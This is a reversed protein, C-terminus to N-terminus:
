NLFINLYNVEIEEPINVGKELFSKGANGIFIGRYKKGNEVVYNKPKKTSKILSYKNEKKFYLVWWM